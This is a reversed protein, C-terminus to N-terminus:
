SVFLQHMRIVFMMLLIPNLPAEAAAILRAVEASCGCEASDSAKKAGPLCKHDIANVAAQRKDHNNTAAIM